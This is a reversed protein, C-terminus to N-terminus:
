IGKQDILLPSPHVNEQTAECIENNISFTSENLSDQSSCINDIETEVLNEKTIKSFDTNQMKFSMDVLCENKYDQNYQSDGLNTDKSLKSESRETLDNDVLKSNFLSKNESEERKSIDKSDNLKKVLDKWPDELFSNIDVYASVNM